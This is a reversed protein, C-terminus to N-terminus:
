LAALLKDGFDVPDSHQIVLDDAHHFAMFDRMATAIDVILADDPEIGPELYLHELYLTGNKRDLRPDFRGVLRDRHLITLCYYGWQRQDAPKYAELVHRFNWFQLDRDKAWLLNDFPNLFTTREPQIAGAAVRQLLDLNDRHVIMTHTQGDALEAAVEVFVGEEILAETIPHAEGRKILHIMDSAQAPLCIGLAKVSREIFHRAMTEWTTETTDVGDPLVRERLDYIRQFNVRDAIMLDGIDFLYELASKAPKWDWWTGGRKKDHKFDGARLGGEEQIRARVRDVLAGNQELWRRTRESPQEQDRRMSALLYRYEVTPILCAAHLWGEFLRRDGYALRDFAAPDYRGVRSWLTFYHSRHVRQLTDIQVAVIKSVIHYLDDPTPVPQGDQSRTLAQIHLALTRVTALPYVAM